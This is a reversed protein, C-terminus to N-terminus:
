IGMSPDHVSRELFISVQFSGKLCRPKANLPIVNRGRLAVTSYVTTYVPGGLDDNSIVSCSSRRAADCRGIPRSRQDGIKKNVQDGVKWHPSPRRRRLKKPGVPGFRGSIRSVEAANDYQRVSYM